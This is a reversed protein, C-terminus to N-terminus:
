DNLIQQIRKIKEQIYAYDFKREGSRADHAVVVTREAKIFKEHIIWDLLPMQILFDISGNNWWTRTLFKETGTETILTLSQLWEQGMSINDVWINNISLWKDAIIQGNADVQTDWKGDKGQSKGIGRLTITNDDQLELDLDLTTSECIFGSYVVQQNHLVTLEPYENCKSGVLELKFKTTNSM